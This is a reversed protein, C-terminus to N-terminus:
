AMLWEFAKDEDSFVKLNQGRNVAVNEFFKDPLIQDERGLMAIKGVHTLSMSGYQAIEFRNMTSIEGTMARCDFLVKSCDEAACADFMADVSSKAAALSFPGTFKIHLYDGRRLIDLRYTM